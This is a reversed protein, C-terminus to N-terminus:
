DKILLLIVCWLAHLLKPMAMVNLSPYDFFRGRFCRIELLTAVSDKVRLLSRFHVKVDDTLFLSLQFLVSRLLNIDKVVLLFSLVLSFNM